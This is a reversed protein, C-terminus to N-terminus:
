YRKLEKSNKLSKIFFIRMELIEKSFSFRKSLDVNNINVIESLIDFNIPSSNILSDIVVVKYNNELLYLYSEWYIWM